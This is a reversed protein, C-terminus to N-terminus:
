RRSKLAEILEYDAFVRNFGRHPECLSISCPLDAQGTFDTLWKVPVFDASILQKNKLKQNELELM